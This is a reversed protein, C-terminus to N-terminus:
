RIVTVNKAITGKKSSGVEYVVKDDKKIIETCGKAHVFTEEGTNDDTIFGYGKQENFFKVKGTQM